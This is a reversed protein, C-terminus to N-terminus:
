EVGRTVYGFSTLVVPVMVPGLGWLGLYTAFGDGGMVDGCVDDTTRM